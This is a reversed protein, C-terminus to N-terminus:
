ISSSSLREVHVEPPASLYELLLQEERLDGYIQSELCGAEIGEDSEVVALVRTRDLQGDHTDRWLQAAKFLSM